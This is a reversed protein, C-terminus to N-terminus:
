RAPPSKIRKMMCKALREAYLGALPHDSIEDLFTQLNKHPLKKLIAALHPRLPQECGSRTGLTDFQTLEDKAKDAADQWDGAGKAPATVLIKKWAPDRAKKAVAAEVRSVALRLSALSERLVVHAYRSSKYPEADLEHYIADTPLLRFDVQDVVYNAIAHKENPDTDKFARHLMWALHALDDHALKGRDAHRALDFDLDQAPRMWLPDGGLCGFLQRRAWQMKDDSDEGIATCLKDHDATWADKDIRAAISADADKESLGSEAAWAATLEAGLKQAEASRPSACLFRAAEFLRYQSSRGNKYEKFRDHANEAWADDREGAHKCWTTPDAAATGAMAIVVVLARMVM